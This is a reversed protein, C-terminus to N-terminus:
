TAGQIDDMAKKTHLKEFFMKMRVKKFGSKKSVM